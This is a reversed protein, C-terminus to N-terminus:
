KKITANTLKEIMKNIKDITENACDDYKNKYTEGAQGFIKNSLEKKIEVKIEDPMDDLYIDISAM